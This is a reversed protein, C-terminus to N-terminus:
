RFELPENAAVAARLGAVFQATKEKWQNIYDDEDPLLPIISELADAIPECRDAAIEGDCDSHYLLEHLPSPKLCEWKIPLRDDIDSLYPRSGQGYASERTTLGHYLTPVWSEDELSVYFGEMLELPPLGAAEAIKKRWRMFTGCSGHWANHSCDLGM